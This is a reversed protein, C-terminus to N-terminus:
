TLGGTRDEATQLLPKETLAVRYEFKGDRQWAYITRCNRCGTVKVPTDCFVCDPTPRQCRLCEIQEVQDANETAFEQLTGTIKLPGLYRVYPAGCVKCISQADGTMSRRVGSFDDHVRQCNRCLFVAEEALQRKEARRYHQMIEAREDTALDSLPKLRTGCRDCPAGLRHVLSRLGFGLLVIVIALAVLGTM